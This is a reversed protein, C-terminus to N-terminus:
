RDHVKRWDEINGVTKPLNAIFFGYIYELQRELERVRTELSKSRKGLILGPVKINNDM